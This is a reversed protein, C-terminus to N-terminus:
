THPNGKRQAAAMSRSIRRAERLGRVSIALWVWFGSFPVLAAAALASLASTRSTKRLAEADGAQEAGRTLGAVMWLVPAPALFWFATAKPGRYPVAGFVGDRGIQRWEDRYVAAGVLAHGIAVLQLLRGTGPLSLARRM